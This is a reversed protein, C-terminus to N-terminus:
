SLAKRLDKMLLFMKTADFPAPEFDFTAYFATLEPHKLHVLVARIGITDAAAAIRLLADQVLGKGYGHGQRSVDVALRALTVVPVDHRSGGAAVRATAEEPRVSGASLTYFGFVRQQQHIVFTRSFGGRHAQLAHERFWSDIEPEGSDFSGTEHQAAIPDPGRM